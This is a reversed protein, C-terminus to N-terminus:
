LDSGFKRPWEAVEDGVYIYKLNPEYPDELEYWHWHRTAGNDELTAKVV